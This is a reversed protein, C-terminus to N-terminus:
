PFRKARLGVNGLRSIVKAMSNKLKHFALHGCNRRTLFSAHIFAFHTSHFTRGAQRSFTPTSMMPM